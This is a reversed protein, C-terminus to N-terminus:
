DFQLDDFGEAIEDEDFESDGVFDIGMDESMSAAKLDLKSEFDDLDVKQAPAKGVKMTCVPEKLSKGTIMEKLEMFFSRETLYDFVFILKQGEDEIM